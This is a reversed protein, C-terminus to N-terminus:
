NACYKSQNGRGTISIKGNSELKNAAKSVTGKSIDLESAIDSCRDLGDRICQYVLEDTGAAEHNILFTENEDETVHWDM